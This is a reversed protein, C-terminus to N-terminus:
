ATLVPTEDTCVLGPQQELIGADDSVVVIPLLTCGFM